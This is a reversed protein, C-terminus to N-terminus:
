SVAVFITNIYLFNVVWGDDVGEVKTGADKVDALYLRRMQLTCFEMDTPGLRWILLECEGYGCCVVEADAPHLRWIRLM